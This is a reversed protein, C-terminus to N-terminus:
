LAEEREKTRGQRGTTKVFVLLWEREQFEVRKRKEFVLKRQNKLV